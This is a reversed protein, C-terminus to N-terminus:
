NPNTSHTEDAVKKMQANILDLLTLKVQYDFTDEEAETCKRTLYETSLDCVNFYECERFYAYCSEGRKPYVQASEYMKITEIDFLVEQIWHARMLYTKIFPVPTFEKTKTQYVLYIVKYSSLDPVIVDLVVSYGIAQSSNKYTAINLTTASTTKCELVIIEGSEKHRLVADVHGRLNFGDPFEVRFSLEIAPKGDFYVLEYQNFFGQARMSLLRKVAFVAMWFSKQEKENVAFLDAHWHLFMDWIIEQESKGPLFSAAIAEGVVHGFAFTVSSTELEGTRHTSRRKYLEYKRPCQHLTQLSSYSLQRIRYDISGTYGSEHWHNTGDTEAGGFKLLRDVDPIDKNDLFEDLNFETTPM